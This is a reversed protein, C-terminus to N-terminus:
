RPELPSQPPFVQAFGRRMLPVKVGYTRTFTGKMRSPISHKRGEHSTSSTEPTQRHAPM